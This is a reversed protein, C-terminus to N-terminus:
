LHRGKKGEFMYPSKSPRTFSDQVRQAEEPPVPQLSAVSSVPEDSAPVYEGRSTYFAPLGLPILTVAQGETPVIAWRIDFPSYTGAATMAVAFLVSPGDEAPQPTFEGKGVPRAQESPRFERADAELTLRQVPEEFLIFETNSATVENDRYLPLRALGATRGDKLHLPVLVANGLESLARQSVKTEGETATMQVPSAVDIPQGTTLSGATLQRQGDVLARAWEPLSETVPFQLGTKNLQAVVDETTVYTYGNSAQAMKLDTDYM